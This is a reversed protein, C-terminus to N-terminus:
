YACNFKSIPGNNQGKDKALLCDGGRFNFHVEACARLRRNGKSCVSLQVDWSTQGAEMFSCMHSRWSTCQSWLAELYKELGFLSNNPKYLFLGTRHENHLEIYM